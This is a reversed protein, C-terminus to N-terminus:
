TSEEDRRREFVAWVIEAGPRRAVWCLDNTDVGPTNTIGLECAGAAVLRAAHQTSDADRWRVARGALEPPALEAFLRRVEWMSAVHIPGTVPLPPPDQARRVIGYDPTPYQFYSLLRLAPHWHFGTIDRYASPVLALDASEDLVAALVADFTPFLRVRMGYRETLLGAVVDSSTGAPGITAITASRRGWGAALEHWRQAFDTLLGDPIPLETPTSM